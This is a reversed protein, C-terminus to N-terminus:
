PRAGGSPPTGIAPLIWSKLLRTMVLMGSFGGVLTAALLWTPHAIAFAEWLLLGVVMGGGFNGMLVGILVPMSRFSPWQLLVSALAGFLAFFGALLAIARASLGNGADIM